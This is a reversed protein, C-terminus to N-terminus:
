PSAEQKMRPCWWVEQDPDDDASSGEAVLMWGPGGPHDITTWYLADDHVHKLHNRRMAEVHVTEVVDGYGDERLEVLPGPWPPKETM